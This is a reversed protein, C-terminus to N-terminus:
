NYKYYECVWPLLRNSLRDWEQLVRTPRNDKPHREGKSVRQQPSSCFLVNKWLQNPFSFKTPMNWRFHVCKALLSLSNLFIGPIIVLKITLFHPQEPLLYSCKTSDPFCIAEKCDNLCCDPPDEEGIHGQGLGYCKDSRKDSECCMRVFDLPNECATPCIKANSVFNNHAFYHLLNSKIIYGSTKCDSWSVKFNM